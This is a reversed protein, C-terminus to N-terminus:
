TSGVCIEHLTQPDILICVWIVYPHVAKLQHKQRKQKVPINHKQTGKTISPQWSVLMTHELHPNIIFETGAGHQQHKNM